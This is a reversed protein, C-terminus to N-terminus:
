LRSRSNRGWWWILVYIGMLGERIDLMVQIRSVMMDRTVKYSMDVDVYLGLADRIM